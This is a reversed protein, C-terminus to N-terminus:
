NWFKYIIIRSLNQKGIKSFEVNWFFYVKVSNGENKTFPRLKEIVNYKLAM